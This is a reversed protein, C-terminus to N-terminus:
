NEERLSRPDCKMWKAWIRKNFGALGMAALAGVEELYGKFAWVRGQQKLPLELIPNVILDQTILQELQATSPKPIVLAPVTDTDKLHLRAFQFGSVRAIIQYRRSSQGVRTVVLPLMALHLKVLESSTIVESDQQASLLYEVPSGMAEYHKLVHPHIELQKLRPRILRSDDLLSSASRSEILRENHLTKTSAKAMSLLSWLFSLTM